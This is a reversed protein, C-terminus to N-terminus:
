DKWPCVDPWGTIFQKEAMRRLKWLREYRKALKKEVESAHSLVVRVQHAEFVTGDKVSRLKRLIALLDADTM